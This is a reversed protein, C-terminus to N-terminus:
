KSGGIYMLPMITEILHYKSHRLPYNAPAPHPIENEDASMEALKLFLFEEAWVGFCFM